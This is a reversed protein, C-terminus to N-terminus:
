NIGLTYTRNNQDLQLGQNSSSLHSGDSFQLDVNYNFRWTDHGNPTIVITVSGGHVLTKPVNNRILMSYPGRDSNDPFGGNALGLSLDSDVTNNQDRMQVLVGTDGDKDENNTHFSVTAAVLAPETTPVSLATVTPAPKPAPATGGGDGGGCTLCIAAYAATPALQPVLLTSISIGLAVTTAAFSHLFRRFM